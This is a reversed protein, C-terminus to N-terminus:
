KSRAARVRRTLETHSIPEVADSELDQDRQDVEEDAQGLEPPSLTDLLRSAIAARDKEGLGKAENTIDSLKM